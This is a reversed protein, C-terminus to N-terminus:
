RESTVNASWVEVAGPSAVRRPLNESRREFIDRYAVYNLTGLFVLFFATTMGYAPVVRALSDACIALVGIFCPILIRGNIDSAKKALWLAEKRSVEAWLLVLPFYCLGLAVSFLTVSLEISDLFQGPQRLYGTPKPHSLLRGMGGFLWAIVWSLVALEVGIIVAAKWVRRTAFSALATWTQSADDAGRAIASVLLWVIPLLVRGLRDVWEKDLVYGSAADVAARDLCGLLAIVVGFRIPSRVLLQLTVRLWRGIFPKEVERPELCDSMTGSM